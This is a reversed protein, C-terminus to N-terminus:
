AADLKERIMDSLGLAMAGAINSDPKTDAQHQLCPSFCAKFGDRPHAELISALSLPPVEDLKMGFLDLGAGFHLMAIEPVHKGAIGASTHLAIANHVLEARAEAEGQDLCFRHALRAGVWEFSGPDDAHKESLGLDHLMAALFFTEKDLKLGNRAALVAGFCYTRYSHRVIFGPCLAEVTQVARCALDSDPIKWDDPVIDELRKLGLRLALSRLNGGIGSRVFRSILVPKAARGPDPILTM